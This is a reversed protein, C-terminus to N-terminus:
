SPLAPTGININDKGINIEPVTADSKAVTVEVVNEVCVILHLESPQDLKNM